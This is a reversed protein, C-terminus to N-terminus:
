AIRDAPRTRGFAHRALAGLGNRHRLAAPLLTLAFLRSSLRRDAVRAAREWGVERMREATRAFFREAEVFRSGDVAATSSESGSHRRYRFCLTDDVLLQGGRVVLDILLALDQIVRLEHDFRLGALAASRWCLSPFYLWDGRLLSVALEEGDLLRRGRVRPAYVRQKAEDALTRTPAGTDDIVQVGPQIIAADPAHEHAALVTGVYNPLMEDDSGMLVILDREALDLCQNFNGTVGLTRDNRLYRVKPEGLGAFWEPVGAARGDDVVTLRWRPDDQALVSRVAARMLSVDGYYPMLIDIETM